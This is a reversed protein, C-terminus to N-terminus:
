QGSGEGRRELVRRAIHLAKLEIQRVRERTLGLAKGTEELTMRDWFRRRLVFRQKPTLWLWVVEITDRTEVVNAAPKAKLREGVLHSMSRAIANVKYKDRGRQKNLNSLAQDMVRGAWTTFRARSPQYNRSARVLAELFLSQTEELDLGLRRAFRQKKCAFWYALKVNQEVLANAQAVTLPGPGRWDPRRKPRGPTVM